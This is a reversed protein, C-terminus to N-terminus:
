NVPIENMSIRCYVKTEAMAMAIDTMRPRTRALIDTVTQSIIYSTRALTDTVTLLHLKKDRYKLVGNLEHKM